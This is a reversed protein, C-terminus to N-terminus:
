QTQTSLNNVLNIRRTKIRMNPLQSKDNNLIKRVQIPLKLFTTYQILGKYNMAHNALFNALGNGERFTHKIQAHTTEMYKQIEEIM